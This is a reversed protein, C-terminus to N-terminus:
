YLDLSTYWMSYLGSCLICDCTPKSYKCIDVVIGNEGMDV